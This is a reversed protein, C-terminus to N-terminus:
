GLEKLSRGERVHYYIRLCKGLVNSLPWTSSACLVRSGEEILRSVGEAGMISGVGALCPRMREGEQLWSEEAQKSLAQDLRITSSPVQGNQDEVCNEGDLSSSLGATAAFIWLAQCAVLMARSEYYGHMNSHRITAFVRGAHFAVQRAERGRSQAWSKLRNECYTIDTNTVRYGCFCFLEGLPVRQLIGITHYHLIIASKLSSRRPVEENDPCLIRLYKMAKHTAPFPESMSEADGNSQTPGQMASPLLCFGEQFAHRLESANRFVGVVLLLVAFDGLGQQRIGTNYLNNM